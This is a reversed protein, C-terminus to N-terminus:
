QMEPPLLEVPRFPVFDISDPKSPASPTWQLQDPLATFKADAFFEAFSNVPQTGFQPSMNVSIHFNRRKEIKPWIPLKGGIPTENALVENKGNTAYVADWLIRGSNDPDTM